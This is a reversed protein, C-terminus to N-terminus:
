PPKEKVDGYVGKRIMTDTFSASTALVEVRVEGPGPEPLMAEEVVKLVQPGGFETIIVRKYSMEREGEKLLLDNM